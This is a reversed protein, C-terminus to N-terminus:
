KGVFLAACLQSRPWIGLFTACIDTPISFFATYDFFTPYKEKVEEIKLLDRRLQKQIRSLYGEEWDWRKCNSCRKPKPGEKRKIWKHSCKACQYETVEVKHCPM